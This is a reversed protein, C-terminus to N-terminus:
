LKGQFATNLLSVKLDCILKNKEGLRKSLEASKEELGRIFDIIKEQQDIPLIPIQLEEIDKKTLAQRTAGKEGTSLLKSKTKPSVLYYALFQPVIDKNVRIISVHQNVRAPLFNKPAICCRAVSAGTINLLVDNEHVEVNSLQKAQIEDIFALGKTKFRLDHINLSRILSIGETKYSQQGGRPTSGSGIKNTIKKLNEKPYKELDKFFQDLVSNIIESAQKKQKELLELSKDLKELSKDLKEVIRKQEEISPVPIELNELQKKTIASFTSGKGQKEIEAEFYKFFYLLFQMLLKNSNVRIAALGRGICSKEQCINTPGVPARVSMLIDGEEAIKMPSSCYKEPIPHIEGFEKKGQYFPIGIKNKNYSSSPPSQGMILTAYKPDGLKILTNNKM